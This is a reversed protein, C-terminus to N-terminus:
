NKKKAIYALQEEFESTFLLANPNIIRSDAGILISKNVSNIALNKLAQNPYKFQYENEIPYNHQKLINKWHSRDDDNINIGIFDINPFKSKLHSVKFHSNKMLMPLSSSWFYIVTPNQIISDLIVNTDNYDTLALTPLKKGIKLGKVSFVLNNINKKDKDNSSKKLFSFLVKQTELSDESVSIFDRTTHNLLNNKVTENSVLSDILELKALNYIVSTRDFMDNHTATKYYNQLALNNFHSFLFKNYTYYDILEENNYDIDKRFDYFNSPLDKYHILNGYGYYGFPYIEKNAYYNYNISTEAINKFLDSYPKQKLFQNLEELKQLRTSDLLHEFAEPELQCLTRFNQNEVENEMFTKILYNNKKAGRGTFVLSEDFDNTNLRFLISDNPELLVMQYEGGHTFSYLGPKLNTIKYLFRNRSDLYVTDSGSRSHITVYDNNPNIVEGGFFASDGLDKTNNKCSFVTTIIILILAIYKM